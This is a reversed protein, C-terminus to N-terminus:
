EENALFKENDYNSKVMQCRMSSSDGAIANECKFSNKSGVQVAKVDIQAFVAVLVLTAAVLNTKM